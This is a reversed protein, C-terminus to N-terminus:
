AVRPGSIKALIAERPGDMVVRGEAMVIVREALALMAPRHTVVVLTRGQLEQILGQILRAETDSDISSSPEDLLVIPPRGALARAIAISQRQGGSLGEGRDALVLDYGNVTRAMFGSTGSVQAVRLMEEDDIGDRGLCINERISGTLLVNDQGAAGISRRLSAPDMQRLDTGDITVVGQSAPYLGLILRTITSKGSGLPGVIAVREGPAIAFNVAKLAPEAAGPYAFNVERFAIAGKLAGMKLGERAPGEIPIAMFANIQRYATQTSTLRSLLNAIQGLPAVARSALMSCAVLGGTTLSHDAVKFVGMVVVGAYVILQAASAFNIAISGVLRQQLGLSAHRHVAELWRQRLFPGAGATKVMELGGITEVLVSQKQFGESMTKASLRELAPQTVAGVLIVLPIMVIPVLVLSHGILGIVVLTLIIFPVDVVATLTASTFFERLSEIERILGTLTGTSTRKLELRMALLRQFLTEGVTHDIRAGAIDVFYARLSKRVFDFGIVIGLGLTLVALSSFANNPVVRDYVTMTFVSTLLSFCSIMVAALGAEIYTKRNERLPQTLWVALRPAPPQVIM